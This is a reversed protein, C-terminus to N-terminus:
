ILSQLSMFYAGVVTTCNLRGDHEVHIINTSNQEVSCYRVGDGVSNMGPKWEPNRTSRRMVAIGVAKAIQGLLTPHENALSDILEYKGRGGNVIHSLATEVQDPTLDRLNIDQAM